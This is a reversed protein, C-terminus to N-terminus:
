EKPKKGGKVIKWIAYLPEGLIMPVIFIPQVFAAFTIPNPVLLIGVYQIIYGVGAVILLSKILINVWKKGGENTYLVGLSILHFGFVILGLGWFKQFLQIHNYIATASSARTVSLLQFIGIGLIASYAMRLASTLKAKKPKEKKYYHYVGLSVLVDMLLIGIWAIVSGIYKGFNSLVNLGTLAVEGSVFLGSLLPVAFGSFVAMMILSLGTIIAVKRRFDPDNKFKTFVTNKKKQETKKVSSVLKQKQYQNLKSAKDKKALLIKTRQTSSALSNLGNIGQKEASASVVSVIEASPVEDTSQKKPSTTTRTPSHPDRKEKKSNVHSKSSAFEVYYGRSYRKKQVSCSSVLIFIFCFLSLSRIFSKVLM